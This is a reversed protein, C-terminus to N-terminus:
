NRRFDDHEKKLITKFENSREVMTEYFELMKREKFDESIVRSTCNMVERIQWDQDAFLLLDRFANKTYTARNVVAGYVDPDMKRNATNFLRNVLHDCKRTAENMLKLAKKDLLLEVDASLEQLEDDMMHVLCNLITLKMYFAVMRKPDLMCEYSQKIREEHKM